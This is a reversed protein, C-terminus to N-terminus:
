GRCAELTRRGLDTLKWWDDDTSEILALDRLIQQTSTLRPSTFVVPPIEVLRLEDDLPRIQFTDRSDARLKRLAVNLHRTIGWSTALWEIWSEVKWDTWRKSWGLLSRLHIDEDGFYGPALALATYPDDDFGRALLALLVAVSENLVYLLDEPGPNKTRAREHLRWARQLEHEPESWRDTPPLSGRTRELLQGVSSELASAGLARNALANALVGGERASRITGSRDLAVAQLTAWFFGQLAVSLLENRQYTGWARRVRELQTPLKWEAGDHFTGAYCAARLLNEFRLDPPVPSEEILQLILTLSHRRWTADASAYTETRAFFLDMLQERENRSSRLGCPCFPELAELDRRRLHDRELVRFFLDAGGVSREFAEALAAGREKDYGPPNNPDGDVYDLIRLDRLPGFYYQGLGGLRNKFYRQPGEFRSFDDLEASAGDLM